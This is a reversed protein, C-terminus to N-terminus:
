AAFERAIQQLMSPRWVGVDFGCAKFKAQYWTQWRSLRGVESKLERFIPPRGPKFFVWDPWGLGCCHDDRRFSHV